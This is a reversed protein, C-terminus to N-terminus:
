TSKCASLPKLKQKLGRLDRKREYKKKRKKILGATKIIRYIAGASIPLHFEEKLRRAGFHSQKRLSIVLKEVEKRTKNHVVKPARSADSLGKLGKQNYRKVWKVVTKVAVSFVQATKRYSHTCSYHEVMNRRFDYLIAKDKLKQNAITRYMIVGRKEM